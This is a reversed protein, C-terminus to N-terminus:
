VSTDMFSGILPVNEHMYSMLQQADEETATGEELKTMLDEVLSQLDSDDIEESITLLQQLGEKMDGPKGMGGPGGMPPPGQMGGKGGMAGSKQMNDPGAPIFQEINFGNEELMSKVDNGPRIGAQRMEKGMSEFDARTFNEAEYNSMIDQLSSKQEETMQVQNLPPMMPNNGVGQISNVM